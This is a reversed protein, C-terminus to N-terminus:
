WREDRMSLIPNKIPWWINLQPDNWKLTFQKSLDYYTSQKYHFIANDSMVLHANGYNPPVLVQYRNKESLAFAQWKRFYSSEENYNVVVLYFMGYLCSILKWTEKDGHIGRLVHRSSISIDDQIFKVIGKERYLAENYIEIYQGRFDEFIEPKILLVGPLDTKDVIM